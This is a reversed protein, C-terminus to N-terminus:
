HKLNNGRLTKGENNLLYLWFFQKYELMLLLKCVAVPEFRDLIKLIAVQDVLKLQLLQLGSRPVPVPVQRQLIFVTEDDMVLLIKHSFFKLDRKGNHWPENCDTLHLIPNSKKGTPNCDLM